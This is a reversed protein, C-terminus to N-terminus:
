RPGGTRRHRAHPRSRAVPPESPEEPRVHPPPTRYPAPRAPAALRATVWWAVARSLHLRRVPLPAPGPTVEHAHALDQAAWSPAPPPPAQTVRGAPRRAAQADDWGLATFFAGLLVGADLLLWVPNEGDVVTIAVAYAMAIVGSVAFSLATANM